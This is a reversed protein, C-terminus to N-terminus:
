LGPLQHSGKDYPCMAPKHDVQQEGPGVPSKETFSNEMQNGWGTRTGPNILEWPYKCKGKNYKMLKKEEWKELINLHREVMQHIM